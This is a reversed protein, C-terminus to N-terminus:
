CERLGSEMVCCERVEREREEEGRTRVKNGAEKMGSKELDQIIAHSIGKGREDDEERLTDASVGGGAWRAAAAAAAEAEAEAEAEAAAEGLTQAAADERRMPVSTTYSPTRTYAAAAQSAESGGDSGEQAADGVAPGEEDVASVEMDDEEEVSAVGEARGRRGSGSARGEKTEKQKMQTSAHLDDRPQSLPKSKSAEEKRAEAVQSKAGEAEQTAQRVV